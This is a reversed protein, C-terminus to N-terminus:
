EDLEIADTRYVFRVEGTMDETLGTFSQYDKSVDVTAKLRTLLGGVDGDVADM